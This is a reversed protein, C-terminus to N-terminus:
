GQATTEEEELLRRQGQLAQIPAIDQVVELTGLYEGKPSRVPFYRIHVKRGGMDIWFEAVKRSGAKFDALIRNVLHVSKQPHCNQVATGIAGRTRPFIKEGGEHSFYRVRDDKDVFSLEVPLTNLIAALVDREVGFSLDKLEGAEIIHEALAYYRSRTDPGLAAEVAEIGAVVAAADAESMVRRAMPYLIDNEKWYHDKLLAAYEGLLARLEPLVEHGGGLYAEGAAVLRPLLSTGRDHEALMVALPGGARPIGRREILPFLHQEEKKNHCAEVYGQFYELADRLISPAPGGPAEFTREVAELVRETTEHDTMLLQSWDSM